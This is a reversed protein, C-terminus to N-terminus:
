YVNQFFHYYLMRPFDEGCWGTEVCVYGKRETDNSGSVGESCFGEHHVHQQLPGALPLPHSHQLASQSAPLAPDNVLTYGPGGQVRFIYRHFRFVCIWKQHKLSDVLIIGVDGKQHGTQVPEIFCGNLIKM